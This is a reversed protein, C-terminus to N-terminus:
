PSFRDALVKGFPCWQVNIEIPKSENDAEDLLSIVAKDADLATNAFRVFRFLNHNHGRRRRRKYIWYHGQEGSRPESRHYLVSKNKTIRM